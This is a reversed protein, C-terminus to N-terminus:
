CSGFSCIIRAAVGKGDKARSEKMQFLIQEISMAHIYSCEHVWSVCIRWLDLTLILAVRAGEPTPNGELIGITSYAFCMSSQM